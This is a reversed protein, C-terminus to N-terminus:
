IFYYGNEYNNSKIFAQPSRLVQDSVCVISCFPTGFSFRVTCNVCGNGLAM